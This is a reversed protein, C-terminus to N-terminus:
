DKKKFPGPDVQQEGLQLASERGSPSSFGPLLFLSLQSLSIVPGLRPAIAIAWLRANLKM